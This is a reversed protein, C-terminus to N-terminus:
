SSMTKQSIEVNRSSETAMALFMYKRIFTCDMTSIVGMCFVVNKKKCKKAWEVDPLPKVSAM